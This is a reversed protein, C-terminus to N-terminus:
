RLDEPMDHVGADPCSAYHADVILMAKADVLEDVHTALWADYEECTLPLKEMAM